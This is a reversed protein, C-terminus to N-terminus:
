GAHKKIYNHIHKRTPITVIYRYNKYQSLIQNHQGFQSSYM